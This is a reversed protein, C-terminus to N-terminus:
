DEAAAASTAFIVSDFRFAEENVTLYKWHNRAARWTKGNCVVQFLSGQLYYFFVQVGKRSIVLNTFSIELVSLEVGSNRGVFVWVM